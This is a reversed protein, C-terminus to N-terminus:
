AKMIALLAHAFTKRRLQEFPLEALDVLHFAFEPLWPPAAPLTQPLDFLRSLRPPDKWPRRNQHLVLPFVPPLKSTGPHERAFAEWIRVM